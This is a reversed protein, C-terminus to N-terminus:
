EHRQEPEQLRRGRGAAATAELDDPSGYPRRWPSTVRTYGVIGAFTLLYCLWRPLGLGQAWVAMVLAWASLAVVDRCIREGNHRLYARLRRRRSEIIPRDVGTADADSDPDGGPGPRDTEIPSVNPETM